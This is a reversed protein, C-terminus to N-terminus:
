RFLGAGVDSLDKVLARLMRPDGHAVEITVSGSASRLM